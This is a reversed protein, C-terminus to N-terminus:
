DGIIADSLDMWAEFVETIETTCYEDNNNEYFHKIKNIHTEQCKIISIEDREILGGCCGCIVDGDDTVIGGHEMENERDYIRVQIM